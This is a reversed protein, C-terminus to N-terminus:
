LGSLAEVAKRSDIVTYETVAKVYKDKCAIVKGDIAKCIYEVRVPNPFERLDLVAMSLSSTLKAFERTFRSGKKEDIQLLALVFRRIFKPRPKKKQWERLQRHRIVFVGNERLPKDSFDCL